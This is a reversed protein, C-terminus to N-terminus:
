GDGGLANQWTSNGTASSTKPSGNDQTGGLLIDASSPHVSFSVFETLSGLSESLSDFQNTGTCSGTNLGAYGDLTRSIGGDHAFYGVAKGSAVMFALGHQDPHVHAPAGLPGPNCGYVHTLNIWDGQTCTTGGSAFTCKYLNIAGAYLDTGAANPVAALELNYYGQEVGCGSNPGFASDGCNTIGNDPIQTWSTGGTTSRWIGEDIPAPNGNNDNQVDVVWVYLENRGPVVGFEGRYILCSSPNSGAPCLGSALGASPQTTLRTFHQGDTSSYLGHRRIFAYFAGQSQNYIVATASAPVASDSLVVRNWTLGGDQSYYLERATSNGDEERGVYLGNDGATAAVVLNPNATSFAVKSFGVGLFSEGTGASQIQMWTSGGDASRLIGLGYYSDGSSNTEGTGVLIVNSNGPQLAIAGVALTPQDDILAQWTVSAPNSNQSGANTSKWLGGYAGGLLVTNGTSDALDIVVSTARGSAWNYDQAGDGTADSALPAPGLPAWVTSGADSLSAPPPIAPAGGLSRKPPHTSSPAPPSTAVARWARMAMKQRYARFRLGAASKGPPVSRGRQNWNWELRDRLYPRDGGRGESPYTKKDSEQAFARDLFDVSFVGGLFAFAFIIVIFISFSSRLSRCAMFQFAM